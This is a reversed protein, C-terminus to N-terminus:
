LEQINGVNVTVGIGISSDIPERDAKYLSEATSYASCGYQRLMCISASHRSCIQGAEQYDYGMRHLECWVERFYNYEERPMTRATTM